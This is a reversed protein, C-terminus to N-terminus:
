YGLAVLNVIRLAAIMFLFFMVGVVVCAATLQEKLQRNEEELRAKDSALIRTQQELVFNSM